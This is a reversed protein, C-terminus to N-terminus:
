MCTRVHVHVLKSELVPMPVDPGLVESLQPVSIRTKMKPMPPLQYKSLDIAFPGTTVAKRKPPAEEVPQPTPSSSQELETPTTSTPPAQRFLSLAPIQPVPIVAFFFAFIPDRM